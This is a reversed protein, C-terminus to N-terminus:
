ESEGEFHICGFEPGTMLENAWVEYVSVFAVNGPLDNAADVVSKGPEVNSEDHGSMDLVKRCPRQKFATGSDGYQRREEGWHICNKCRENM